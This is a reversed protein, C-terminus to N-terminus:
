RSRSPSARRTPTTSRSAWASSTAARFARAQTPSCLRGPRRPRRRPLSVRHHAAGTTWRTLFPRPSADRTRRSGRQRGGGGARAMQIARTAAYITGGHKCIWRLGTARTDGQGITNTAILGFTGENRLLNFARRFFHAVLDANGHSEDHITKLWDLYGDGIVTRSRTRAWSRRTAWSRMSGRIRATSCRPFSSRGTSRRHDAQRGDRLTARAAELRSHREVDFQPQAPLRRTARRADDLREKRKGTTTPRRLLRRRGPRRLVAVPNLAEDALPLSRSPASRRVDGDAAERIQRRQETARTSAAGRDGGPRLRAAERAELPLRRDADQTLGVLSDGCRLAHDLFTFPHDKALTALWLSLKALDVAM